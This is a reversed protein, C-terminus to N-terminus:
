SRDRPAIAPRGRRLKGPKSTEQTGALSIRDRRNSGVRLPAPFRGRVEPCGAQRGDFGLQPACATRPLDQLSVIRLSVPGVEALWLRELESGCARFVDVRVETEPDVGQLITKAPPDYPHVHRFLLASGLSHPIAAFSAAVFDIDHVPRTLSPGGRRQVHLEIAAGGTLAWQSIDHTSLMQLTRAARVSDAADLFSELEVLTVLNEPTNKGHRLM